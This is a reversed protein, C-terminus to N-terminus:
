YKFVNTVELAVHLNNNTNKMEDKNDDEDQQIQPFPIQLFTNNSQHLISLCQHYHDYIIHLHHSWLQRALCTHHDLVM